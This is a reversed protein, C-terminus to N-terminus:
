QEHFKKLVKSAKIYKYDVWEIESPSFDKWAVLYQTKGWYMSYDSIDKVEFHQETEIM